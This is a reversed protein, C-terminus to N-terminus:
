SNLLAILERAADEDDFEITLDFGFDRDGPPLRYRDSNPRELTLDNTVTLAVDADLVHGDSGDDVRITADEFRIPDAKGTM